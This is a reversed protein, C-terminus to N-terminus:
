SRAGFAVDALPTYVAGGPRLDSHIYVLHDITAETSPPDPTYDSVAQGVAALDRSSLNRRSRALTLHPSFRKGEAAFGVGQVMAEVAAQLANLAALDGDMGVWLVRPRRLNPFGGVGSVSLRFPRWDVAAAQLADILARRQRADTDGLFRLTLHINGTRSWSLRRALGAQTSTVSYGRRSRSSPTMSRPRCTSPSLRGCRILLLPTAWLIPGPPQSRRAQSRMYLVSTILGLVGLGSASLFILCLLLVMMNQTSPVLLSAFSFTPAPTATPWPTFTPQVM